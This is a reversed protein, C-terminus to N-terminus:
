PLPHLPREGLRRESVWRVGWSGQGPAGTVGAGVGQRGWWGCGPPPRGSCRSPGWGGPTPAQRVPRRSVERIRYLTRM